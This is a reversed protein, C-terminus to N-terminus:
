AGRALRLTNHNLMMGDNVPNQPHMIPISQIVLIGDQLLRGKGKVYRYPLQEPPGHHARLYTQQRHASLFIWLVDHIGNSTVLYAGHM